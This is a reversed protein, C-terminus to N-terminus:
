IIKNQYDYVNVQVKNELEGNENYAEPIIDIFGKPIVEILEEPNRVECYRIYNFNTLIASGIVSDFLPEGIKMHKRSFRDLIFERVKDGVTKFRLDHKDMYIDVKITPQIIELDHYTVNLSALRREDIYERLRQGVDTLVQETKYFVELYESDGLLSKWNNNLTIIIDNGSVAMSYAIYTTIGTVDNVLPPLYNDSENHTNRNVGLVINDLANALYNGNVLIDSIALADEQTIKGDGNLDYKKLEETTPSAEKNNCIELCRFLDSQSYNTNTGYIAAANKLTITNGLISNKAYTDSAEAVKSMDEVTWDIRDKIITNRYKLTATDNVDYNTADPLVYMYVKYYDDPQILGSSPDNYDLAAVDCVGEISKSVEEFDNITVITNMTRAWSPVSNRMEDVTEPNYGSESATNSEVVMSSYYNSNNALMKTLINKGIRGDAGATILYKLTIVSGQNLQSTWYSPLQIYLYKDEHIHVSFIREGTVFRVDDVQKYDFGDINLTITNVGIAYDNLIIRGLTNVDNITYTNQIPVGQYVLFTASQNYYQHEELSCYTISSSANVFQSYAPIVEGDPINQNENVGMRITCYPALYHRPEYGVLAALSIASARELATDIYLESTVKDAQYNLMDALYSIMKLFVTGIDSDSFDTWRGESLEEARLKLYELISYSDRRNYPLNLKDSDDPENFVLEYESLLETCIDRMEVDRINKALTQLYELVSRTDKLDQPIPIM